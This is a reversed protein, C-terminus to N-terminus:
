GYRPNAYACLPARMCGWVYVDGDTTVVANHLGGAAVQAVFTGRRLRRSGQTWIGTIAQM